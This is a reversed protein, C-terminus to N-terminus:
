AAYAFGLGPARMAIIAARRSNFDDQAREKSGFWNTESDQLMDWYRMLRAYMDQHKDDFNALLDNQETIKANYFEIDRTANLFNNINTREDDTQTKLSDYDAQKNGTGNIENDINNIRSEIRSKQALLQNRENEYAPRDPSTLNALDNLWDEFFQYNQAIGNLEFELEQKEHKLTDLEDKKTALDALHTSLDTQKTGINADDIGHTATISAKTTEAVTKGTEFEHLEDTAHARAADTDAQWMEQSAKLFKNRKDNFKAGRLRYANGAITLGYGIARFAWNLTKDMANTILQVGENKNWSYKSDSFLTLDTKNMTDMIKSTTYGYKIVTLVEMATKAEEEKGQEIAEVILKSVLHKMKHGSQLAGEVTKPMTKKLKNITDVMWKFHKKATFKDDIKEIIKDSESLVKDLGDTPKIKNKSIASVIVKANDSFFMHDGKMREYKELYNEYTEDWWENIREPLTLDDEKKPKVYDDSKEDNYKIREKAEELKGSIKGKDYNKFVDYVKPNKYLTKLLEKYDFSKFTAIKSNLLAEDEFGKEIAEFDFGALLRKNEDNGYSAENRLATVAQVLRAQSKQNTNYKKNQIDSKLDLFSYDDNLAGRNILAFELEPHNNLLDKLQEIASEAMPSATASSFLKTQDGFYKDLFEIAKKEYKFAKRNADMERFTNRFAKYLKEWEEDSLEWEGGIEMPDPLDKRIYLGGSTEFEGAANRKLLDFDEVWEKMNGNYDKKKVYECFTVFQEIPMSRFHQRKYFELLFEDMNKAM